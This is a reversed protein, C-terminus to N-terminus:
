FLPTALYRATDYGEIDFANLVPSACHQSEFGVAIVEPSSTRLRDFVVARVSIQQGTVWIVFPLLPAPISIILVARWM